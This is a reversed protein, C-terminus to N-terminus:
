SGRPCSPLSCTTSSPESTALFPIEGVITAVANTREPNRGVVAVDWGLERAAIAGLGSSAGSIVITKRNAM